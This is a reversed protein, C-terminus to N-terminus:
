RLLGWLPPCLYKSKEPTVAKCECHALNKDAFTLCNKKYGLNLRLRSKQFIKRQEEGLSYKEFFVQAVFFVTQSIEYLFREFSVTFALCGRWVSSFNFHSKNRYLFMSIKQMRLTQRGLRSSVPPFGTFRLKTIILM